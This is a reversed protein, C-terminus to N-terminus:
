GIYDAYKNTYRSNKALLLLIYSDKQTSVRINTMCKIHRSIRNGNNNNNNCVYKVSCM